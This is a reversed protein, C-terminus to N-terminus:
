NLLVSLIKKYVRINTDKIIKNVFERNNVTVNADSYNKYVFEVIVWQSLNIESLGWM